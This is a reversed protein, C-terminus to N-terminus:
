LKRCKELNIIETNDPLNHLCTAESSQKGNLLLYFLLISTEPYFQTAWCATGAQWQCLFLLCNTTLLMVLINTQNEKQCHFSLLLSPSYSRMRVSRSQNFCTMYFQPSIKLAKKECSVTFRSKTCEPCSPFIM